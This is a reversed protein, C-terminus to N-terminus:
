LKRLQNQFLHPLDGVQLNEPRDLLGGMFAARGLVAAPNMGAARLKRIGSDRNAKSLKAGDPHRLLPHHMFVSPESRGLMRALRIQRGTSSLLDQGRIILNIDQEMDDVTVAFQYTWNDLRDRLLLDGCQVAPQQRHTGMLLDTFREEGEELVVRVGLGSRLELGRSRCRGPYRREEPTAEAIGAIDKRSCDCGYIRGTVKLRNLANAYVDERNSQRFSSPGARLEAPHGLDPEFGLWELDDM